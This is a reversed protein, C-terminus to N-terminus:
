KEKAAKVAAEIWASPDVGVHRKHVLVEAVETTAPAAPSPPEGQPDSWHQLRVRYHEKAPDLEGGCFDCTVKIGM